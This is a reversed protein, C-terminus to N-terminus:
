KHQIGNVTVINTQFPDPWVVEASNTLGDYRYDKSGTRPRNSIGKIEEVEIDKIKYAVLGAFFEISHVEKFQEVSKYNLIQQFQGPYLSATRAVVSDTAAKSYNLFSYEGHTLFEEHYNSVTDEVVILGNHNVAKLSEIVTVIQQFSRHGGDDLLVDFKGIEQYTDNWFKPDGQDGIFIEFGYAEWKKADPNLDIGIIRADDGLWKRWMFLSGGDLVGIEIFTCKTGRLHSFLDTYVKFYNSIKISPYPSNYYSDLLETLHQKKNM